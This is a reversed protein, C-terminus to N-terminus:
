YFEQFAQWLEVIRPFTAPLPKLWPSVHQSLKGFSVTPNQIQIFIRKEDTSIGRGAFLTAFRKRKHKNTQLKSSPHLPLSGKELLPLPSNLGILFTPIHVHRLLKQAQNHTSILRTTISRVHIDCLGSTAGHQIKLLDAFTSTDAENWHAESNSNM